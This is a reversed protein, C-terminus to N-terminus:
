DSSQLLIISVTVVTATSSTRRRLIEILKYVKPIRCFQETNHVLLVHYDIPM